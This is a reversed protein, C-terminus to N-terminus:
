LRPSQQNVGLTFKQSTTRGRGTFKKPNGQSRTSSMLAGLRQKTITEPLHRYLKISNCKNQLSKPLISVRFPSANKNIQKTKYHNKIQKKSAPLVPHSRTKNIQMQKTITEQVRLIVGKLFVQPKEGCASARSRQKAITKPPLPHAPMGNSQDPNENSQDPDENSQDPDENSQGPNENSWLGSLRLIWRNIEFGFVRFTYSVKRQLHKLLVNYRVWRM